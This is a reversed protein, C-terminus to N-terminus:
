TINHVFKYKNKQIVINQRDIKRTYSPRQLPNLVSSSKELKLKTKPTLIINKIKKNTTFTM